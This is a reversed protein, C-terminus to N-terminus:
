QSVEIVVASGYDHPQLPPDTKVTDIFYDGPLSKILANFEREVWDWVRSKPGYPRGPRVKANHSGCKECEWYDDDGFFAPGRWLWAGCSACTYVMSDARLLRPPQSWYRYCDLRMTEGIGGYVEFHQLPKNCKECRVTEM